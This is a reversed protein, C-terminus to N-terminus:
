WIALYRGDTGILINFYGSKSSHYYNDEPTGRLYWVERDRDVFLELNGCKSYLKKSGARFVTRFSPVSTVGFKIMQGNERVIKHEFESVRDSFYNDFEFSKVGAQYGWIRDPTTAVSFLVTLGVMAFLFLLIRPKGVPWTHQRTTVLGMILCGIQIAFLIENLSTTPDISVPLPLYPEYPFIGWLVGLFFLQM